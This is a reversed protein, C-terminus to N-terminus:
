RRLGRSREGVRSPLYETLVSLRAVAPALEAWPQSATVIGPQCAAPPGGATAAIAGRSKRFGGFGPRSAAAIEEGAAGATGRFENLLRGDRRIRAVVDGAPKAADLGAARFEGNLRGRRWCRQQGRRCVDRAILVDEEEIKLVLIVALDDAVGLLRRVQVAEPATARGQRVEVRFLVRAVGIVEREGAARVARAVVGHV